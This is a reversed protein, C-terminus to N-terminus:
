YTSNLNNHQRYLSSFIIHKVAYSTVIRNPISPLPLCCVKQRCYIPLKIIFSIRLHVFELTLQFVPSIIHSHTPARTRYAPVWTFGTTLAARRLLGQWQLYTFSGAKSQWAIWSRTLPAALVIKCSALTPLISLLTQPVTCLGSAILRVIVM